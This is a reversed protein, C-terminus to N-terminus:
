RPSGADRRGRRHGSRRAWPPRAGDGGDAEGGRRPVTPALTCVCDRQDTRGRGMAPALM